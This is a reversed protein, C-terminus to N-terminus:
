RIVNYPSAQYLREQLAPDIVDYPPAVVDSMAGVRTMDYRVGRFPRVDPMSRDRRNLGSHGVPCPGLASSAGSKSQDKSSTGKAMRSETFDPAPSTTKWGRVGM